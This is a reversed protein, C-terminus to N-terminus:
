IFLNFYFKHPNIECYKSKYIDCREKFQELYCLPVKRM